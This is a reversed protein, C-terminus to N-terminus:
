NTEFFVELKLTLGKLELTRVVTDDRDTLITEDLTQVQIHEFTESGHGSNPWYQASKEAPGKDDTSLLM